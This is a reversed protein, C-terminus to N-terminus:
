APYPESPKWAQMESLTNKLTPGLLERASVEGGNQPFMLYELFSVAILNRIGEHFNTADARVYADGLFDLLEKISAAEVSGSDLAEVVFRTVDGFFVHPLIEDYNDRSHEDYLPRLAPFRVVM